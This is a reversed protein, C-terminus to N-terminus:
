DVRKLTPLQTAFRSCKKEGESSYIQSNELSILNFFLYSHFSGCARWCTARLQEVQSYPKSAPAESHYVFRWELFSCELLLRFLQGSFFYSTQKQKQKTKYFCTFGCGQSNIFPLMLGLYLLYSVIVYFYKEIFFFLLQNESNENSFYSSRKTEIKEYVYVVIITSNRRHELSDTLQQSLTILAPPKLITENCFEGYPIKEAQTPDAWLSAEIWFFLTFSIPKGHLILNYLVPKQIGSDWTDPAEGICMNTFYVFGGLTTM